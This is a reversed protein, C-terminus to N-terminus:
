WHWSLCDPYTFLFVIPSRLLAMERRAGTVCTVAKTGQVGDCSGDGFCWLPCSLSPSLLGLRTICSSMIAKGPMVLSSAVLVVVVGRWVSEKVPTSQWAVSNGHYLVAVVGRETLGPLEAERVRYSALSPVM